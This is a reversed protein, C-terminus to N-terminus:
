YNRIEVIKQFDNVEFGLSISLVSNSFWEGFKNKFSDENYQFEGNNLSKYQILQESFMNKTEYIEFFRFSIYAGYEVNQIFTGNFSEGRFSENEFTRTSEVLEYLNLSLKSNIVGNIKQTESTSAFVSTSLLTFFTFCYIFLKNLTINGM